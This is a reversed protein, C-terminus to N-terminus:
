FYYQQDNSELKVFLLLVEIDVIKKLEKSFM